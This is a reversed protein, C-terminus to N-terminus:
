ALCMVLGFDDDKLNISGGAGLPESSYGLIHHAPLGRHVLLELVPSRGLSLDVLDDTLVSPDDPVQGTPILAEDGGLDESSAVGAVDGSAFWSAGGSPYGCGGSRSNCGSSAAWM